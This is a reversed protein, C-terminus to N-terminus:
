TFFVEVQRGSQGTKNIAMGFMRAHFVKTINRVLVDQDTLYKDLNEYQDIVIGGTQTNVVFLKTTGRTEPPYMAIADQLFQYDYDSLNM